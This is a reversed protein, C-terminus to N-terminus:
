KDIREDRPLDCNSNNDGNANSDKDIEQRIASERRSIIVFWYVCLLIVYIFWYTTMSTGYFNATKQNGMMSMFQLGAGIAYFVWSSKHKATLAAILMFINMILFYGFYTALDYLFAM